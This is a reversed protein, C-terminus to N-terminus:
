DVEKSKMIKLQLVTILMIVAFLLMSKASAYGFRNNRGFAEEFINIAVVQTARGPGGGTLSYVVDFIQFSSNLTIFICITIAYRITPLVVFHFKQFNNAGDIDAAEKMSPSVGQLAAIYIVMLYGVGGWISVIVIAIFSYTPDGIWSQDLFKLASNKAIFYLVETFIFMWMYAGIVMSIMNPMYFITRFIGKSRKKSEILIALLLAIINELVVIVLVFKLTVWMSNWFFTDNSFIEIYNQMGILKYNPNIGNWNTFSYWLGGFAPGLKFLLYFIFAPLTFIILWFNENKYLKKNM